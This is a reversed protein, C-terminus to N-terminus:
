GPYDTRVGDMISCLMHTAKMLMFIDQSRNPLKLNALVALYDQVLRTTDVPIRCAVGHTPRKNKM